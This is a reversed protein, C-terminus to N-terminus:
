IGKEAGPLLGRDLILGTITRSSLSATRNTEPAEPPGLIVVEVAM